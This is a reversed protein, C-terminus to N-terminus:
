AEQMQPVLGASESVGRALATWDLDEGGRALVSLIRDRLLSALPTPVRSDGATELMLGVDKLGMPLTFAPPEYSQEAIRKGYGKYIPCAFLTESLMKAVDGRKVEQKEAVAFAEAMAEIASAILFNGVVKVVNAAGPDEGFDYTGQGLVDIIPKIKEKASKKGSLCIWLKGADASDPRGFVPAAVYDVNYQSHHQALRRSMEPSITSMSIHVGDPGLNKILEESGLVMQEVARDDALMTILAGGPSSLDQPRDVLRAGAEVVPKAKSVTRNYVWVRHDAKVLNKAMPVGMRGLGIFGIRDFM